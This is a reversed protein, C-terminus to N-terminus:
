CINIAAQAKPHSDTLKYAVREKSTSHCYAAKASLFSPSAPIGLLAIASMLLYLQITGREYSNPTQDQLPSTLM